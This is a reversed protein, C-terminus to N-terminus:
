SDKILIRVGPQIGWFVLDNAAVDASAWKFQYTSSVGFGSASLETKDIITCGTIIKSSYIKFTDIPLTIANTYGVTGDDVQIYQIAAATGNTAAAQNDIKQVRLMAYIGIVTGKISTAAPIAIAGLAKDAAATTCTVSAVLDGWYEIMSTGSVSAVSIPSFGM